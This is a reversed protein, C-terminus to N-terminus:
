MRFNQRTKIMRKLAALWFNCEDWDSTTLLVQLHMATAFDSSDLASCLQILKSSVNPSIDGSNLKAFLAGIKRSNDEIERKKAQTAQSGGLAKSTEDFLRTLTAIVPRLEASVKSTDATQVTPPPAPPAPQAQSQAQTPSSPQAPSLGPRQVFGQNSPPMFRATSNTGVSPNFMQNPVTGPVSAGAGFPPVPAATQYQAPSRPQHYTTPPGSQYPAAPGSSYPQNASGTYLQSGLTNAQQYQEPNKLGTPNAPTFTKVTQQSVPAPGPTPQPIAPTSPPVFMHTPQQPQYSNNYGYAATPQQQYVESYTNSPVSYPQPVQYVNQSPDPTTYSLQNVVYSANTDSASSGAAASEETSCAIRDRLIALDHSHEDSGLLKLYEMATKLLGQSALLEAYNEVLKSLSASFRKHGTALALTITKEMLDQLLDVYTKGGDESKLNRSWIEVTKDINGACIYCLTAALTDGVNLLRSALTDCLVTWEEKQAFTCLLALTEKWSSLPWTRVFSTLDNGVMASVVKLYPSVSNKLYHNRTSEWLATGGAHAIVLADAMRNAALCQNVAGKYDGVVLAHQISRDISPDSPVVDAPMEQEKQEGNSSISEEPVSPESPQPNNFFDDGNDVLFQTDMNDTVTGQDLNLTDELTKSLEDTSDVTPAQPPEFGLHALLKTRAVDGDEFMVRLFGWTEREEDSLSEQSKKECLARLSSKDGNQMAAEFETSRSVLSQEIVLNHVHVESTAVQAGQAPAAPHFSVLKGGFGFSAGTPCKLWKPAPARPRAPAGIADGAAYLGSFELNHVGIKGDFSAAAIVGPIKRYWHVDFNGNASTPLESIIEGSVTDWCITRNDKSCTLLFSSDYPCWSMAIVGKTHGVFERVPSITKRVDWVRLAPSNDDDSAVILQTSMDPNWQLVSCPRRNSDSFSTLPKQNRLDWVVTMGNSSTSAVIHQFKPNWSLCSIGAQASSSVSKLPPYVTPESPNKLDWIFLDGEDAGSALRNPTLESFELGSVPGTHKELRAVMADEAQGESSIMSLPNWVAVSGDSLGGALLGLSFSDGEVAAPRSWSLRNFRDPAPACALLPLDPSDSQFDLGFIEINASASFSMDVAGSMTGAALYPADPALATLAARPASKICTM